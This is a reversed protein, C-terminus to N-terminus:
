WCALMSFGPLSMSAPQWCLLSICQCHILSVLFVIFWSQYQINYSFCTFLFINQNTTNNTSLGLNCKIRWFIGDIEQKYFWTVNWSLYDIADNPLITFFSSACQLTWSTAHALPSVGGCLGRFIGGTLSDLMWQIEFTYSLGHKWHLYILFVGGINTFYHYFGFDHTGLIYGLQHLFHNPYMTECTYKGTIRILWM